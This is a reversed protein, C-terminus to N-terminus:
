FIGKIVGAVELREIAQRCQTRAFELMNANGSAALGRLTESAERMLELGEQIADLRSDGQPIAASEKQMKSAATDLHQAAARVTSADCLGDLFAYGADLVSAFIVPLGKTNPNSPIPQHTAKPAATTVAAALTKSSAELQGAAAVLEEFATRERLCHEMKDLSNLVFNLRRMAELMGGPPVVSRLSTRCQSLVTLLFDVEDDEGTCTELAQFVRNVASIPTPGKEAGPRLPEELMVALQPALQTLDPQIDPLPGGSQVTTRVADLLQQLHYVQQAAMPSVQRGAMEFRLWHVFSPAEQLLSMLRTRDGGARALAYHTLLRNLFPFVTVGQALTSHHETQASRVSNVNREAEDVSMSLARPDQDLSAQRMRALGGIYVNLAGAIKERTPPPMEVDYETDAMFQRLIHQTTLEVSEILPAM